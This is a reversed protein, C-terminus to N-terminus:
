DYTPQEPQPPTHTPDAAGQEIQTRLSKELRGMREMMRLMETRLSRLEALTSMLRPDPEFGDEGPASVGDGEGTLLWRLTVGLLASLMQLRNARPEKLDNEWERITKVRVGLRQALAQQNLGSAERAAALRDGLTAHEDTFWQDPM